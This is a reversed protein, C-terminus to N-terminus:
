AESSEELPLILNLFGRYIEFTRTGEEQAEILCAKLPARWTYEHIYVSALPGQAM